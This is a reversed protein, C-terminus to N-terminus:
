LTINYFAQLLEALQEPADLNVEHGSGPVIALQASSIHEFLKESARSNVTDKKGCIVLTPCSIGSLAGSFDLETMSTCLSIMDEKSLGTQAFMGKPMLRFLMNQLRLTRKPMRYQAAILVLSRVKEPHKSAYHLALVGGLSLGCLDIAGELGSCYHSFGRYLSDYSMPKGKALDYLNPCFIDTRNLSFAVAKWSEATQGLGHVLVCGM